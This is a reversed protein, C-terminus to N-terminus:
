DFITPLEDLESIGTELSAHIMEYALKEQTEEALDLQEYIDDM